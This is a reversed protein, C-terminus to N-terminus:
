QIPQKAKSLVAVRHGEQGKSQKISRVSDDKAGVRVLGEGGQCSDLANRTFYLAVITVWFCYFIFPM